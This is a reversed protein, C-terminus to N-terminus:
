NRVNEEKLHLQKAREHLNRKLLGLSRFIVKVKRSESLSKLVILTSLFTLFKTRNMVSKLCTQKKNHETPLPFASGSIYFIQCLDFM